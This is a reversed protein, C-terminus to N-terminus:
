QPRKLAIKGAAVGPISEQNYATSAIIQDTPLHFLKAKHPKALGTLVMGKPSTQNVLAISNSPPTL